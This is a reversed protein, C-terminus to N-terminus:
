LVTLGFALNFNVGAEKPKDSFHKSFEYFGGLAGILHFGPEEITFLEINTSAIHGFSGDSKDAYVYTLNLIFYHFHYNAGLSIFRYEGYPLSYGYSTELSYKESIQFINGIHGGKILSFGFHIDAKPYIIENVNQSFVNSSVFTIFISLYFFERLIM